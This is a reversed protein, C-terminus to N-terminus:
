ASAGGEAHEGCRIGIWKAAAAVSRFGQEAYLWRLPRYGFTGETSAVACATWQVAGRKGRSQGIMGVVDAEAVRDVRRATVLFEYPEDDVSRGWGFLLPEGAYLYLGAVKRPPQGYGLAATSTRRPTEEGKMVHAIGCSTCVIRVSTEARRDSHECEENPCGHPVGDRRDRFANQETRVDVTWVPRKCGSQHALLDWGLYSDM